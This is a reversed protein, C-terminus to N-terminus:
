SMANFDVITIYHQLTNGSYSCHHVSQSTSNIWYTRWGRPFATGTGSSVSTQFIAAKTLDTIGASSIDVTCEGASSNTDTNIETVTIESNKIKNFDRMLM